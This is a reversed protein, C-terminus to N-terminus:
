SFHYRFPIKITVSRSGHAIQGVFYNGSAHIRSHQM